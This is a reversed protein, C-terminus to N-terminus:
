EMVMLALPHQESCHQASHEVHKCQQENNKNQTSTSTLNSIQLHDLHRFEVLM